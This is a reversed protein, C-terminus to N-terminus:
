RGRGAVRREVGRGEVVDLFRQDGGVEAGFRRLADALRDGGAAELLEVLAAQAGDEGLLDLRDERRDGLREVDPAERARVDDQDDADVARALGGGDALEAVPELLLIIAHQEGGAVGEAGRRDLLQLDPALADARRDDDPLSPPSAAPITKSPTM